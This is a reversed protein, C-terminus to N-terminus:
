DEFVTLCFSSFSVPLKEVKLTIPHLYQQRNQENSPGHITDPM